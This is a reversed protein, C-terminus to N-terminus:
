RSLYAHRCVCCPKLKTLANVQSNVNTELTPIDKGSYGTADNFETDRTSIMSRYYPDVRLASYWESRTYGSRASNM